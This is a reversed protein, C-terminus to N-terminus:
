SNAIHISPQTSPHIVLDISLHTSWDIVSQISPHILWHSSPHIVWDLSLQITAPHNFWQLLPQISVHHISAHTSPHIAWAIFSNIPLHTSSPHIFQPHSSYIFPHICWNILSCIYWEILAIKSAGLIFIIFCPLLRVSKLSCISCCCSGVYVSDAYQGTRDESQPAVSSLRWCKLSRESIFKCYARWVYSIPTRIRLVHWPPSTTLTSGPHTPFCRLSLSLAAKCIAHSPFRVWGSPISKSASESETKIFRHDRM